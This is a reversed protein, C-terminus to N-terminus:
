QKKEPLVKIDKGQLSEINFRKYDYDRETGRASMQIGLMRAQMVGYFSTPLWLGDSVPAQYIHFRTGKKITAFGGWVLHIDHDVSAEMHVVERDAEDIWFIGKLGKTIKEDLGHAKADARGAFDFVLVPRGQFEDERRLNSADVLDLLRGVSIGLAELTPAAHPAKEVKKVVKAISKTQKNQGEDSLPQGDKKVVRGILYGNVYFNEHEETETGKLHGKSDFFQITLLSSYTYNERVTEVQKQHKAVECVLQHIDPLPLAPQQPRVAAGFQLVTLMGALRFVSRAIM